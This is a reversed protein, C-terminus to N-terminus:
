EDVNGRELIMEFYIKASELAVRLRKQAEELSDRISDCEIQADAVEVLAARHKELARKDM